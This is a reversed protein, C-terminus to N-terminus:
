ESQVCFLGIRVSFSISSLGIHLYIVSPHAGRVESCAFVDFQNRQSSASCMLWEDSVAIAFQPRPAAFSACLQLLYMEIRQKELVNRIELM